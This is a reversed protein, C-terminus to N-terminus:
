CHSSRKGRAATSHTAPLLATIWSDAWSFSSPVRPSPLLFLFSSLLTQLLRPQEDSSRVRTSVTSAKTFMTLRESVGTEGARVANADMRSPM